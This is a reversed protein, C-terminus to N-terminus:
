LWAPHMHEGMIAEVRAGASMLVEKSAAVAMEERLTLDQILRNLLAADLGLSGAHMQM